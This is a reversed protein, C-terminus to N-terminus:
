SQLFLKWPYDLLELFILSDSGNFSWNSTQQSKKAPLKKRDWHSQFTSYLCQPPFVQCIGHLFYMVFVTSSIGTDSSTKGAASEPIFWNMKNKYLISM